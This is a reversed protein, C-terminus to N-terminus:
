VRSLFVPHKRVDVKYNVAAADSWVEFVRPSMAQALIFVSTMQYLENLDRRRIADILFGRSAGWAVMAHKVDYLDSGEYTTAIFLVRGSTLRYGRRVFVYPGAWDDGWTRAREKETLTFGRGGCTECADVNAEGPKRQDGTSGCDTCLLARSPRTPNM